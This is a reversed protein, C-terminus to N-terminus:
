WCWLSSSCPAAIRRSKTLFRSRRLGPDARSAEKVRGLWDLFKGRYKSHAFKRLTGPVLRVLFRRDGEGEGIKRLIEALEEERDRCASQELREILLTIQEGSLGEIGSPPILAFFDRTEITLCTTSRWPPVIPTRLEGPSPVAKVM